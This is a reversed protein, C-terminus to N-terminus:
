APSGDTAPDTTLRLPSGSGDANMVYIDSDGGDRESRFTIRGGGPSWDPTSDIASNNTLRILNDGNGDSDSDVSDM